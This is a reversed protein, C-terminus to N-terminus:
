PMPWHPRRPAFRSSFSRWSDDAGDRRVRVIHRWTGIALIVVMPYGWFGLATAYAVPLIEVRMLLKIAHSAVPVIQLGTLWITWFRTSLITVVFLGALLAADVLFVGVQMSRFSPSFLHGQAVITLADAALFLIAVAREPPGGRALAFGSCAVLMVLWFGIHLV